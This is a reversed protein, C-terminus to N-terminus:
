ITLISLFNSQTGMLSFRQLFEADDSWMGLNARSVKGNIYVDWVKAHFDQRLTVRVWEPVKEGGVTTAFQEGTTLWEGGENGDGNLVFLEGKHDIRFFGAISGKRMLLSCLKRM